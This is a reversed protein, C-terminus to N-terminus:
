VSVPQAPTTPQTNQTGPTGTNAAQQKQLNALKVSNSKWTSITKLATNINGKSGIANHLADYNKKLTDIKALLQEVNTNVQNTLTNIQEQNFTRGTTSASSGDPNITTRVTYSGTEPQANDEFLWSKNIKKGEAINQITNNANLIKQNLNALVRSVNNMAAQADNAQKELKEGYQQTVGLGRRMRKQSSWNNKNAKDIKRERKRNYIEKAKEPSINGGFTRWASYRDIAHQQEDPTLNDWGTSYSIGGSGEKLVNEVSERILQKLESETIRIKAMDTLSKEKYLEKSIFIM